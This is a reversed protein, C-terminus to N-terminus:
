NTVGLCTDPNVLTDPYYLPSRYKREGVAQVCGVRGGGVGSCVGRVGGSCAGRMGVGVCVVVCAGSV